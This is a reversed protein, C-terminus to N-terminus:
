IHKWRARSVIGRIHGNSTKFDKALATLTGAPALQRSGKAERHRRRIEKVQHETLRTSPHNVGCLVTGHKIRDAQNGKPTDWRLNSLRNNAPNGDGHCCQMGRPIPGVFAELILRHVKRNHGKIGVYIYGDKHPTLKRRWWTRTLVQTTGRKFGLSQKKWRSWITGDNGARYGLHNPINRYRVSM